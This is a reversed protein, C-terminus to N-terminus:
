PIIHEPTVCPATCTSRFAPGTVWYKADTFSYIVIILIPAYLLLLLVWLYTQMLVKKVM